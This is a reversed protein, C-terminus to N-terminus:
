MRYVPNNSPPRLTPVGLGTTWTVTLIPATSPSADYQESRLYSAAGAWGTTAVRHWLTMANSSAWGSRSVIEQVVTSIDPTNYDTGATWASPTWAVTASTMTRGNADVASTPATPSDAAEGALVTAPIAGIVDYARMTIVATLITAGAPITVTTYRMWSAYDYISANFDGVVSVSLAAGFDGGATSVYGDDGSAAITFAAM